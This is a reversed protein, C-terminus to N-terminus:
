LGLDAFYKEKIAKALEADEKLVGLAMTPYDNVFKKSVGVIVETHKLCCYKLAADYDQRAIIDTIKTDCASWLANVDIGEFITSLNTKLAQQTKNSRDDIVSSRLKEDIKTKVLRRIIYDKREDLKTFFATKFALFESGNKFLQTLVKKFIAEDLLLMEIENCKLVYVKKIKLRNVDEDSKLDSDIIGVASQISYRITHANCADVSNEVSVCSGTPIVTYQDGFLNEYVKYDYDTKSGECFLIPKRSGVVEVIFDSNLDELANGLFEFEFKNPYIFNKIKVLEFDSRANIFEMTHSIFIFQCDSREDMLRDWIKNYVAPNLHNEPEDVIIFSQFPAVIVTAIYFFAAREGDSMGNFPFPHGGSKTAQIQKNGFDSNDLKVDFFDDFIRKVKEFITDEKEGGIDYFKRAISDHETCLGIILKQLLDEKLDGGSFIENNYTEVTSDYMHSLYGMMKIPKAAPIVKVHTEIDKLYNALSTKGSGNAGLIVLTKNHGSTHKLIEFASFLNNSLLRDLANELDFFPQANNQPSPIQQNNQDTTPQNEPRMYDFVGSVFFPEIAELEALLDKCLIDLPCNNKADDLAKAYDDLVQINQDDDFFDSLKTISVVFLELTNKYELNTVTEALTEAESKLATVTRKIGQFDM